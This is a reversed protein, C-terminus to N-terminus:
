EGESVGCCGVMQNSVLQGDWKILPNDYTHPMETGPFPYFNGSFTWLGPYSGGKARTQPQGGWDMNKPDM